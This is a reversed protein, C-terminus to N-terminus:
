LFNERHFQTTFMRAQKIITVPKYSKTSDKRHADEVYDVKYTYREINEQKKEHLYQVGRPSSVSSRSL